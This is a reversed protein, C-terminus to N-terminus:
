SKPIAVFAEKLKDLNVDDVKIGYNVTPLIKLRGRKGDESIFLGANEKMLAFGPNLSLPAIQVFKDGELVAPLPLECGCIMNVVPIKPTYTIDGNSEIQIDPHNTEIKVQLVLDGAVELFRQAPTGLKQLRVNANYTQHKPLQLMIELNRITKGGECRNKCEKQKEYVFGTQQCQDCGQSMMTRMHGMQVQGMFLGQGKCKPCQKNCENCLVTSQKKVLQEFGHLAQHLNINVIHVEDPLQVPPRNMQINMKNFLASVDFYQFPDFPFGGQPQKLSLDYEARKGADKLVEYAANIKQFQQQDGGKDPHHNLALNRFAKKIDEASADQSIGLDDYYTM